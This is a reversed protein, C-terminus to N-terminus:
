LSYLFSLPGGDEIENVDAFIRKKKSIVFKEALPLVIRLRTFEGFSSSM